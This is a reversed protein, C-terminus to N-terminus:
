PALWTWDPSKCTSMDPVCADTPVRAAMYQLDSDVDLFDATTGDQALNVMFRASWGNGYDCEINLSMRVVLLGSATIEPEWTGLLPFLPAGVTPWCPLNPIDDSWPGMGLYHGRRLTGDPEFRFYSFHDMGGGWGILWTGYLNDPPPIMEYCLGPPLCHGWQGCDADNRCEACRGFVCRSYPHSSFLMCFEDESCANDFISDCVCVPCPAESPTVLHCGTEACYPSPYCPTEKPVCRGSRCIQGDECQTDEWCYVCNGLVCAGGYLLAGIPCDADTKCPDDMPYAPPCLLDAGTEAVYGYPADMLAAIFTCEDDDLCAAECAEQSLFTGPCGGCSCSDEMVCAAGDFYWWPYEPIADDCGGGFVECAPPQECAAECEEITNFAFECFPECWCCGFCTAICKEGDFIVVNAADCYEKVWHEKVTACTAGPMACVGPLDDMDCDALCSCVQNGHCVRPFPCDADRWCRGAEAALKCVGFQLEPGFSVPACVKVEMSDTLCDDDEWCCGSPPKPLDASIDDPIDTPIDPTNDPGMPDVPVDGVEPQAPVDTVDPPVLPIDATGTDATVESELVDGGTGGGASSCGCALVGIVFLCATGHRM